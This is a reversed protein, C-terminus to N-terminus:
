EKSRSRKIEGEKNFKRSSSKITLISICLTNQFLVTFSLAIIM